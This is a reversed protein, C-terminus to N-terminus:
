LSWIETDTVYLLSM